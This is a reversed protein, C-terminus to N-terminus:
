LPHQLSFFVRNEAGEHKWYELKYGYSSLVHLVAEDVSTVANGQFTLTQDKVVMAPLEPQLKVGSPGMSLLVAGPLNKRFQRHRYPYSSVIADELARIGYFRADDLLLDWEDFNDPVTLTKSRMFNLVHRFTTGDRDIVLSGDEARKGSDRVVQSFIPNDQYDHFTKRQCTYNVGGVNINIVQGWEGTVDLGLSQQLWGMARLSM